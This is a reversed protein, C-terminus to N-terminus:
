VQATPRIVLENITTDAPLEVALKLTDAIREAPIALKDYFNKRTNARIESVTMHDVLETAIAGPSVTTVRINNAAEEQRLAESIMWVGAKTASYVGGGQHVAHAAISAVNIFQGSGQEHMIPLAAHIGYLVGKLNTDIMAEWDDVRDMSFPSHPMIGANNMWVDIRGFSSCAKKALKEVSCIDTVDTIAYDAQGGSATIKGTIEKLREERRAGLMIKYGAAALKLATAEGIGSSAGTIAIVKAKNNGM